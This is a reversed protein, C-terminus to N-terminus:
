AGGEKPPSPLPRWHTPPNIWNRLEAEAIEANPWEHTMPGDWGPGWMLVRTGDKPASSIDRWGDELPPLAMIADAKALSLEYADQFISAVEEDVRGDELLYEEWATPDIIRAIEERRKDTSPTKTM